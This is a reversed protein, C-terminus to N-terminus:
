PPAHAEERTTTPKQAPIWPPWNPDADLHQLLTPTWDFFFFGHGRSAMVLHFNERAADRDGVALRMVAVAFYGEAQNWRSAGFSKVFEQEALLGGLYQVLRAYFERRLRPLRNTQVTLELSAAGAQAKAGLLLPIVPAYAAATGVRFRNTFDQFAELAAGRSNPLQTLILARTYDGWLDRNVRRQDLVELAKEDDGHTLLAFAYLDAIGNDKVAPNFQRFLALAAASQGTKHLYWFRGVVASPLSPFQELGRADLAAQELAARQKDPQGSEEFVSASILHVWLSIELPYANGPLWTKAMQVDDIAAQADAPAATDVARGGRAEGRVVRAIPSTPLLRVAEDLLLLGRQPEYYGEAQGKFLYDEPTVPSLRELEVLMQDYKEFQFDWNYATALMARPAVNNPLLRVAQELHEIANTNNGQHLELQGRLMQVQGPSAHLLEAEDIAKNAHMLDGSMALTLAKEIASRQEEALLRRAAVRSQYAFFLAMLCALLVAGSAGAVAPHRRAWKVARQVINARRAEIAFRNVYRRLDEAFAGATRYRRDPDKDMAKLCITELDPPIKRDLARPPKPEKHLIQSIVQDRREGQFAPQLTLAEYLTAGLSYIDTRHDLLARGAAIQEPSMYLPSGMFEGTVTMGPEELVRALGFDTLHLRGQPSVLLNSPKIDRHIVGQRHAHELGDAVEAFMRAIQDFYGAGSSLTTTTEGLKPSSSSADSPPSPNDAVATTEQGDAKTACKTGCKTSGPLEAKASAADREKRAARIIRDLSTGEILEMAYFHYEGDEGTAYIPVINTHHLKAAAAAERRFRNVAQTTLGLGAKLVKLAVKRNLSVQRAEYVVGMGGRGLERILEFDGLVQLSDRVAM